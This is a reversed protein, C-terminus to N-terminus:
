IALRGGVVCGHEAVVVAVHGSCWRHKQAFPMWVETSPLNEYLEHAAQQGRQM